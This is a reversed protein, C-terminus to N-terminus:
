EVWLILKGTKNTSANTVVLSLIENVQFPVSGTSLGGTIRLGPVVTSVNSGPAVGSGGLVDNGYQDYLFVSYENSPWSPSVSLFSARAIKGRIPVTTNSVVCGPPVANSLSSTWAFEIRQPIGQKYHTEVVTGVALLLTAVLCFAFTLVRKKM